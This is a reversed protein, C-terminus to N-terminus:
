LTITAYEAGTTYGTGGYLVQVGTITTGSVTTVRIIADENGGLPIFVDGVKYGTGANIISPISEIVGGTCFVVVSVGTGNSAFSVVGGTVSLPLTGMTLQVNANVFATTAIKTSNDFVQQTTATSAGLSMTKTGSVSQNTTLDVFNKTTSGTGGHPIALPNEPLGSGSSPPIETM